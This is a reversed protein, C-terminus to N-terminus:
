LKGNQLKKLIQENQKILNLTKLQSQKRKNFKTRQPSSHNGRAM